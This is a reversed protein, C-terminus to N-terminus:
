LARPGPRHQDRLARALPAADRRLAAALDRCRHDLAATRCPPCSKPCPRCMAARFSTSPSGPSTVGPPGSRGITHILAVGDLALLQAVKGFYERYHPVGVHEFMGVSVIRDFEGEVARYDMLRIDIRDSLGAERARQHRHPATGRVPHRGPGARRPRARADACGAGAAASTSCACAPQLRLKAAIHAKKQAQAQELTDEPTRFYACSYQRDADLFLDYLAGSLDYHHAVNARARHAPNFQSIARLARQARNM